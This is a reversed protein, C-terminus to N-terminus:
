VCVQNLFPQELVLAVDPLKVLEGALVTKLSNITTGKDDKYKSSMWASAEFSQEWCKQMGGECVRSSRINYWDGGVQPERGSNPIDRFTLFM